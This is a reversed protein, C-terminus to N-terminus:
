KINTTAGGLYPTRAMRKARLILPKLIQQVPPPATTPFFLFIGLIRLSEACALGVRPPLDPGQCKAVIM